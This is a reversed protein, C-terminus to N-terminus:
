PRKSIEGQLWARTMSWDRRGTRGAQQRMQREQGISAHLLRGIERLCFAQM